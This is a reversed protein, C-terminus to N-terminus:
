QIYKNCVARIQGLKLNKIQAECTIREFNNICDVNPYLRAESCSIENAVFKESFFLPKILVIFVLMTALIFSIFVLLPFLISRIM